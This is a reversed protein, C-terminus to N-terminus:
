MTVQIFVALKRGKIVQSVSCLWHETDIFVHIERQVWWIVPMSSWPICQVLKACISIFSSSKLDTKLVNQRLVEIFAVKHLYTVISAVILCGQWHTRRGRVPTDPQSSFLGSYNINHFDTAHINLDSWWYM